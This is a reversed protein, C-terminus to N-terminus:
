DAHLRSTMWAMRRHSEELQEAAPRQPAAPTASNGDTASGASGQSENRQVVGDVQDFQISM